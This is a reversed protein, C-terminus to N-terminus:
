CGSSVFSILIEVIRVYHSKEVFHLRRIARQMLLLGAVGSIFGVLVELVLSRIHSDSFVM